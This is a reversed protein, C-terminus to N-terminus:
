VVTWGEYWLGERMCCDMGSVVIRGEYLLGDRM